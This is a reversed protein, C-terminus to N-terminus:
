LPLEKKGKMGNGEGVRCVQVRFISAAHVESIGSIEEWM